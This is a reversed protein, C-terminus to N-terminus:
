GGHEGAQGHVNPEDEEGDNAEYEARSQKAKLTAIISAVNDKWTAMNSSEIKSSRELDQVKRLTNAVKIANDELLAVKQTLATVDTAYQEKLAALECETHELRKQLLEHREDPEEAGNM